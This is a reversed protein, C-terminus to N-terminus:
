EFFLQIMVKSTGQLVPVDVPQVPIPERILISQVQFFEQQQLPGVVGEQVSEGVIGTEQAVAPAAPPAPQNLSSVLPPRVDNDVSFLFPQMCRFVYLLGNSPAPSPDPLCSM